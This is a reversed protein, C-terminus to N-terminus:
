PVIFSFFLLWCSSWPAKLREGSFSMIM